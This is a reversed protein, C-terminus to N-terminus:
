KLSRIWAVISKAQEATLAKAKHASASVPGKGERIANVLDADSQSQVAASRYDPINNKKGMATDGSGTPGHCMACNKSKFLDAGQAALNVSPAAPPPASAETKTAPPPQPMPTVPAPAPAPPPAAATTTTVPPPTKSPPKAAPNTGMTQIAATAPAPPVTATTVTAATMTTDTPVTTTTPAVTAVTASTESVTVTSTNTTESRKCAALLVIGLILLKKM